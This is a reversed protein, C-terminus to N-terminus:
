VLALGLYLLVTGISIAHEVPYTPSGVGFFGGIVDVAFATLYFKALNGM